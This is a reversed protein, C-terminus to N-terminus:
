KGKCELIKEIIKKRYTYIKEADQTNETIERLAEDILNFCEKKLKENKVKVAQQKLYEMYKVDNMGERMAEWRYSTIPDEGPYVVMYTDNKWLNYGYFGYGKIGMRYAIIPTIRYREYAAAEYNGRTIVNYSWIEKREKRLYDIIEDLQPKSRWGYTFYGHYGIAPCGIDLYPVLEKVPLGEKAEMFGHPVITLFIRAKKDVGKILKYINLADPVTKTNIEDYPYFAFQEYSLGLEKLHQIIEKVWIKYCKDWLESPYNITERTGDIRFEMTHTGMNILYQYKKDKYVIGSDFATFDKSVLNGERDFTFRPSEYAALHFASVGHELMDRHYKIWNQPGNIMKERMSGGPVLDWVTLVLPNDKQLEVPYIVMKAPIKTEKGDSFKLIIAGDYTADKIDFTNISLWVIKTTDKDLTFQNTEPMRDPMRGGGFEPEMIRIKERPISYNKAADRFESLEVTFQREKDSGNTVLINTGLVENICGFIELKSIKNKVPANVDTPFKAYPIKYWVTYPEKTTYRKNAIPIRKTEEGFVLTFINAAYDEGRSHHGFINNAANFIIRGKGLVNEQIVMVAFNKDASARLPAIQNEAWQRFLGCWKLREVGELRFPTNLVPHNKEKEETSPVPYINEGPVGQIGGAVPISVGIEQFFSVAEKSRPAGMDFIITGGNKLFEKLAERYVQNGFVSDIAPGISSRSQGFYVLKSKKLDELFKDSLNGPFDVNSPPIYYRYETIDYEEVPFSPFDWWKTANFFVASKQGASCVSVALVFLLGAFFRKMSVEKKLYREESIKAM